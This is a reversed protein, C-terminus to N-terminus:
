SAIRRSGRENERQVPPTPSRKNDDHYGYDLQLLSKTLSFLLSFFVYKYHRSVKDNDDNATQLRRYIIMLLTKKFLFFCVLARSASAIRKSGRNNDDNQQRNSEDHLHLLTSFLLHLSHLSHLQRQQVRQPSPPLYYSSVVNLNNTTASTTVFCKGV